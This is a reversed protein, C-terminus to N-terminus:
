PMKTPQPPLVNRDTRPVITWRPDRNFPMGGPVPV